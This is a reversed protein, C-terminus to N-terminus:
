PAAAQAPAPAPHRGIAESIAEALSDIEEGSHDAHVSIRLRATGHPVSPPRIARVDFGRAQVHAAVALARENSGLVVPVIPGRGPPRDLGRAQLASRLRAALDLVAARRAPEAAALDLLVDIAAVLLPPPATTFIFPRARNVLWDMVVRPGAVFAGAMGLAKGFTSIIVAARGEVRHEEPLGSGRERGFVGTAHADDVVLVSDWREALDACRGLAAEDGDMSFLSETVLFTRGGDHPRRLEAEAVDLDLHPFVSKRAGSLRLGDILSAHNLADSIARDRPGLLAGLVALNAQYGSPFLLAAETGKWRALREELARHEPRNGRLLRSAPAGAPGHMRSLRERIMEVLLPHRSLGLYDNSSFDIGEPDKLSRGLGSARIGELREALDDLFPKM